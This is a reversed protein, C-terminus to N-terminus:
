GGVLGVGSFTQMWWCCLAFVSWLVIQGWVALVPGGVGVGQVEM